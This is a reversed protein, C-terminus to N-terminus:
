SFQFIANNVVAGIVALEISKRLDATAEAIDLPGGNGYEKPSLSSRSCDIHDSCSPVLLTPMVM